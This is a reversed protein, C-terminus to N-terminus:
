FHREPGVGLMHKSRLLRSRAMTGLVASTALVATFLSVITGIGLTFAFGKVGGTALMFLIFAVGITVVNADIITKLAKAYGNAIAAPISRGHRVEEKVREFIVINADAAVGLTLIMGAIGPLTMTIPILKILAFLLIGYTVLGLVAVIGLVRYFVLLFIVTLALGVAGAILGQHLAQKGLSASVQTKSILKLRIPLAGIRLNQALDQTEQISGIGNIQAGTRGDIGDPNQIFDIYARSVIQDDLTIAFHQFANQRSVGAPLITQAGRQAVRRTVRSFAQRGKKSFNFTVIPENTQPDFNQKPDKIDSGTLESDDEMVYYGSNIKTNKLNAPREAGIIVIGQPVTYIKSGAPPGSTGLANLQAACPGTAKTPKPTPNPPAKDSFDSLLDKCSTEPGALLQDNKNFLYYKKGSTDNKKDYFQRVAQTNSPDIGAAQLQKDDPGAAPVDNAEALPKAKAARKVADILGPIPTNAPGYDVANEGLEKGDPGLARGVQLVRLDVAA